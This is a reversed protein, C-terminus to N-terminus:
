PSLDLGTIENLREWAPRAWVSQRASVIRRRECEDLSWPEDEPFNLVGFDGYYRSAYADYVRGATEADDYSGLAVTKGGIYLRPQYFPTGDARRLQGVGRMGGATRRPGASRNRAQQRRSAWRLNCRRNDLKNRNAHDVQHRGSPRPGHARECVVTHMPGRSQHIAYGGSTHWRVRALDADAPSVLAVKGRGKKGRLPIEVPAGLAGLPSTTGGRLKPTPM